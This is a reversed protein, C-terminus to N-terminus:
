HLTQTFEAIMEKTIVLNGSSGDAAARSAIDTVHAKFKDIFNQMALAGDVLKEHPVSNQLHRMVEEETRLGTAERIEQMELELCENASLTADHSCGLVEEVMDWSDGLKRWAMPADDSSHRLTRQGWFVVESEEASFEAVAEYHLKWVTTCDARIASARHMDSTAAIKGPWWVAVEEEDVEGENRIVTWYVEIKDGVKLDLLDDAVSSLNDGPAPVTAVACSGM